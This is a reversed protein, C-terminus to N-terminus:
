ILLRPSAYVRRRRAQEGYKYVASRPVIFAHVTVNGTRRPIRAIPIRRRTWDVGFARGHQKFRDARKAGNVGATPLKPNANIRLNKPLKKELIL